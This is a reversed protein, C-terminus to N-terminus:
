MLRPELLRLLTALQARQEATLPALFAAAQEDLVTIARAQARAGKKTPHILFARRDSPHTRREILAKGELDDILAVMTTRDIGITEGLQRQTLPRAEVVLTLIGVQRATLGLERLRADAMSTSTAAARYLLYPVRDRM